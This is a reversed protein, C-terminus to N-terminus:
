GSWETVIEIESPQLERLIPTGEWKYIDLEFLKGESLLLVLEITGGDSDRSRATVPSYLGVRQADDPAADFRLSGYQDITKVRVSPLQSRVEERGHFSVTFLQQLIERETDSLPRWDSSLGGLAEDRVLVVV